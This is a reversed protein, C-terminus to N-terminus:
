PDGGYKKRLKSGTEWVTALNGTDPNLQPRAKNGIFEISKRGKSDAKIKGINLPNTLANRVDEVSLNRAVARAAFHESLSSVTYGNSTVTGILNQFESSKKNAWVAKQSLSKDFGNSWVRSTDPLGGTKKLFDALEKAQNKLKVSSVNFDTKFDVLM